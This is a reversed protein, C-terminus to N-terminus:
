SKWERQRQEEKMRAEKESLKVKVADMWSLFRESKEEFKILFPEPPVEKGRLKYYWYRPWYYLVAYVTALALCFALWGIFLWCVAMFVALVVVIIGGLVIGCTGLIDTFIGIFWTM